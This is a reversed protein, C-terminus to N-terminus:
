LIFISLFCCVIVIFALTPFIRKIRTLYFVKISQKKEDLVKMMLFGSLVLFIDVGIYGGIFNNPFLHFFVVFLVAIARLFQIELIKRTHAKSRM